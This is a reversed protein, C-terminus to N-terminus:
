KNSYYKITDMIGDSFNIQNKLSEVDDFLSSMAYKFDHGKRDDVFKIYDNLNYDSYGLFEKIIYNILQLNNLLEKGYINRLKVNSHNHLIEVLAKAHDKVYIWERINKGDGYVPIKEGSKLCKLITPILKEYNQRPGYNNCCRTVTINLGYTENYAFAIMDSSAKSASYPSRPSIASKETFPLDEIKLHGYVEDTSVHVVRSNPVYRKVAELIMTSGRVNSDIFLMPDEISRDVHSEAACHIVYDPRYREFINFIDESNIDIFYNVVSDKINELMSGVGMKDINVIICDKIQLLEDIIHSGIFGCGGTILYIKNM